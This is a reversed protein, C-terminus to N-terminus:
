VKPKKQFSKRAEMKRHISSLDLGEEVFLAYFDRRGFSLAAISESYKFGSDSDYHLGNTQNYYYGSASDLMWDSRSEFSAVTQSVRTCDELAGNEKAVQQASAIDRQYSSAHMEYKKRHISSLDLGEEVFLAYFDRRGFSFAASVISDSYKFGSDSDCHLGNTQNYYYGFASDLVLRRTSKGHANKTMQQIYAKNEPIAPLLQSISTTRVDKKAVLIQPLITPADDSAPIFEHLWKFNMWPKVCVKAEYLKKKIVEERDGYESSASNWRCSAIQGEGSECHM